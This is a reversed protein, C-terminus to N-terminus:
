LDRFAFWLLSYQDGVETNCDTQNPDTGNVKAAAAILEEHKNHNMTELNYERKVYEPMQADPHKDLYHRMLNGASAFSSFVCLHCKFPRDMMQRTAPDHVNLGHKRILHRERNSKTSFMVPCKPCKFPKQGPVVFRM